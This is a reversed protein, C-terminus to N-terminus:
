FGSNVFVPSSPSQKKNSSPVGIRVLIVVVRCRVERILHVIGSLRPVGQGDSGKGLFRVDRRIRLIDSARNNRWRRDKRWVGRSRERPLIHPRVLRVDHHLTTVERLVCSANGLDLRKPQHGGIHVPRCSRKRIKPRRTCRGSERAPITGGNQRLIGVQPGLGYATQDHM